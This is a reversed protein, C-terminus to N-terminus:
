RMLKKMFQNNKNYNQISIKHMKDPILYAKLNQWISLDQVICFKTLYQLRYCIRVALKSGSPESQLLALM